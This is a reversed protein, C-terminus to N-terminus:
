EGMERFDKTCFSLAGAFCEGKMIGGKAGITLVQISCIQGSSKTCYELKCNRFIKPIICTNWIFSRGLLRWYFFKRSDYFLEQCAFCFTSYHPHELLSSCFLIRCAAFHNVLVTMLVLFSNISHVSNRSLLFLSHSLRLSECSENVKNLVTVNVLGIFHNSDELLFNICHCSLILPSLLLFLPITLTLFAKTFRSKM